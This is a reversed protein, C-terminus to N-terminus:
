SNLILKLRAMLAYVSDPYKEWVLLYNEVASENDQLLEHVLGQLYYFRAYSTRYYEDEDLLDQLSQLTELILKPNAGALLDEYSKDLSEAFFEYIADQYEDNLESLVVIFAEQIGPSWDLIFEIDMELQIVPTRQNGFKKEIKPYRTNIESVLLAQIRSQSKTFVWFEFGLTDPNRLVMWQELQDDGDFDLVGQSIVAIGWDRLIQHLRPYAEIPITASLDRIATQHDCIDIKLCVDYYNDISRYEDLFFQASTLYPNDTQFNPHSILDDFFTIAKDRRGIRAYYEGLRFLLEDRKEDLTPKRGLYVDSLVDVVVDMEIPDTIMDIVDNCFEVEDYKGPTKIENQIKLLEFRDGVWQYTKYTALTCPDSIVNPTSEIIFGPFSLDADLAHYIGGDLVFISRYTGNEDVNKLEVPEGLSLDFIYFANFFGCCYDAGYRLVLEDFGDGTLDEFTTETWAGRPYFLSSLLGFFQFGSETELLLLHANPYDYGPYASGEGLVVLRSTRYGQPPELSVLDLTVRQERVAFWAPLEEVNIEGSNLVTIILSGYCDLEPADPDRGYLSSYALYYCRDFQWYISQPSHPFRMISEGLAFALHDFEAMFGSDDYYKAYEEELSLIKMEVHALLESADRDSWDRLTYDRAEINIPTGPALTSIQPQERTATPSPSLTPAITSTPHVLTNTALTHTATVPAITVSTSNGCAVLILSIACILLVPFLMKQKM